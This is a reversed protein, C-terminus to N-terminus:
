AARRHADPDANHRRIATQQDRAHAELYGTDVKISAVDARLQGVAAGIQDVRHSLDALSSELGDARQSAEARAAEIAALVDGLTPEEPM